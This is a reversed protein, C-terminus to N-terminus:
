LIQDKVPIASMPLLLHLGLKEMKSFGHRAYFEMAPNDIADVAVAMAGVLESAQRATRLAHVLLAKGLGQRHLDRHIALQALLIAPAPYRLALEARIELPLHDIEITAASLSYFGLVAPSDDRLLVRTKSINSFENRIAHRQLWFDLQHHGCKFGKSIHDRSLPKISWAV